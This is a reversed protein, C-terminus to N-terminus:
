KLFWLMILVGGLLIWVAYTRVYGSQMVGGFIIVIKVLTLALENETLYEIM